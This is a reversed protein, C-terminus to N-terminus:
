RVYMACPEHTLFVDLGTCLYPADAAPIPTVACAEARLHARAVEDVCVM